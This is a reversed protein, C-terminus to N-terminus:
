DRRCVIRSFLRRNAAVLRYCCEVIWIFPPWGLFRALGRWGLGEVIFLCARGGRLVTGDATVVHLAQECASRLAPTMPPSPAEQYAVVEFRHQLDKRKV